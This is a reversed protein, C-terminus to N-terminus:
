VVVMSPGADLRALVEQRLEEYTKTQGFQRTWAGVQEMTMGPSVSIDLDILGIAVVDRIAQTDTPVYTVFVRRYWGSRSNTGGTIRELIYGGPHVIYDDAALTTPSSAGYDEVVSTITDAPRALVVYRQGTVLETISGEVGVYADISEYAADLLRQLEDDSLSSTVHERLETVTLM